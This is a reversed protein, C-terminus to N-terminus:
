ADDTKEPEADADQGGAEPDESDESDQAAAGEKGKDPDPDPEKGDAQLGALELQRKLRQRGHKRRGLREARKEESERTEGRVAFYLVIMGILAVVVIAVTLHVSDRATVGAPKMSLTLILPHVEWYKDKRQYPFRKMFVGTFEYLEREEFKDPSEAVLVVFIYPARKVGADRVFLMTTDPVGSDSLPWGYIKFKRLVMVRMNILKGRHFDQSKMMDGHTLKPDAREALVQPPHTRLFRYIHAVIEHEGKIEFGVRPSTQLLMNTDWANGLVDHDMEPLPKFKPLIPRFKVGGKGIIEPIKVPPSTETKGATGARTEGLGNGPPLGIDEPGAVRPTTRVVYVMLGGFVIIAALVVMRIWGLKGAAEGRNRTPLFMKLYNGEDKRREVVEAFINEKRKKRLAGGTFDIM